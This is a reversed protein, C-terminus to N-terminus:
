APVFPLRYSTGASSDGTDRGPSAGSDLGFLFVHRELWSNGSLFDCNYWDEIDFTLINM